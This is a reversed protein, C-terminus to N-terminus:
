ILFFVEREMKETIYIEEVNMLDKRKYLELGEKGKFNKTNGKKLKVEMQMSFKEQEQNEM